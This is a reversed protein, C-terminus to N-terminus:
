QRWHQLLELKWILVAIVSVCFGIWWGSTDSRGWSRRAELPSVRRWEGATESTSPAAPHEAIEGLRLWLDRHQAQGSHGKIEAIFGLQQGGTNVCFVGQWWSEAESRELLRGRIAFLSQSWSGRGRFTNLQMLRDQLTALKGYVILILKCLRPVQRFYTIWWM